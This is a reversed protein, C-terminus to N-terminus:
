LKRKIENVYYEIHKINIINGYKFNCQPCKIIGQNTRFINIYCNVCYIFSCKSCHTFKEMIEYCLLCINDRKEIKKLTLKFDKLSM